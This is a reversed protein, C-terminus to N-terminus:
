VAHPYVARCMAADFPRQAPTLCSSASPANRSACVCSPSVANCRATLHWCISATARSIAAPLLRLAAFLLLHSGSCMAVSHTAGAAARLKTRCSTAAPAATSARPPGSLQVGSICAQLVPLMAAMSSNLCVHAASSASAASSCTVCCMMIEAAPFGPRPENQECSSSTICALM